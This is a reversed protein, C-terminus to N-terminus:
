DNKFRKLIKHPEVYEVICQCVAMGAIGVFFAAAEVSTGIKAAVDAGVYVAFLGGIVISRVIDGPRSKKFYLCNVVGGAIGAVLDRFYPLLTTWFDHPM